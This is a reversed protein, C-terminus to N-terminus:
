RRSVRLQKDRVLRHIERGAGAMCDLFRHVRILRSKNTASGPASGFFPSLAKCYDSTMIDSLEVPKQAEFKEDDM